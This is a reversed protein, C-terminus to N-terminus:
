PASGSASVRSHSRCLPVHVNACEHTVSLPVTKPPDRTLSHDTGIMRCFTGEDWLNLCHSGQLNATVQRFAPWTWTKKVDHARLHGM